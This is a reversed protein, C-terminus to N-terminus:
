EKVFHIKQIKLGGSDTSKKINIDVAPSGDSSSIERWTIVTGDAMKTTKGKINGNKDVIDREVGGKSIRSYFDKATASPDSSKIHRVSDDKSNGKTGFYGNHIPYDKKMAPLNQSVSHYHFGGGKYSLGM